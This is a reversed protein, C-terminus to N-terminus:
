GLRKAILDSWTKIEDWVGQSVAGYAEIRDLLGLLYERQRSDALLNNHDRVLELAYEAWDPTPVKRKAM